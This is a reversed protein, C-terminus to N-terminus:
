LTNNSSKKLAQSLLEPNVKHPKQHNRDHHKHDHHKHDHHKHHKHHKHDHHKHDHHKHHKHHKHGDHDAAAQSLLKPDVKNPVPPPKPSKKSKDKDKHNGHHNGDHHKHRHKHGDHDAAAAAANAQQLQAANAQQLQQLDRLSLGLPSNPDARLISEVGQNLQKHVQTVTEQRPQALTGAAEQQRLSRLNPGEGGYNQRLTRNNSRRLLRLHRTSKKKRMVKSKNAIRFRSSNKRTAAM